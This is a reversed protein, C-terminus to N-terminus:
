FNNVKNSNLEVYYSNKKALSKSITLFNLQLMKEHSHMFSSSKRM